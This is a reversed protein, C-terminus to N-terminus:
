FFIHMALINYHILSNGSIRVVENDPSSGETQTSALATSIETQIEKECGDSIVHALINERSVSDEFQFLRDPNNDLQVLLQARVTIRNSFQYNAIFFQHIVQILKRTKLQHFELPESNQLIFMVFSNKFM